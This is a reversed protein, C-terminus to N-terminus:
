WNVISNKLKQATEEYALENTELGSFLLMLIDHNRCVFQMTAPYLGKIVECFSPIVMGFFM